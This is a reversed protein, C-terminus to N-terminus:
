GQINHWHGDCFQAPFAPQFVATVPGNGNEVTFKIAGDVMQLIMYDKKAHVAMLIGSLNRPKIDM